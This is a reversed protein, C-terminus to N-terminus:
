NWKTIPELHFARLSNFSRGSIQCPNSNNIQCIMVTLWLNNNKPCRVSIMRFTDQQLWLECVLSTNLDMVMMQIWRTRNKFWSRWTWVRITILTEGWHYKDIELILPRSRNIVMLRLEKVLSNNNPFSPLWDIKNPYNKCGRILNKYTIQDVIPILDLSINKFIKNNNCKRTTPIINFIAKISLSVKVQSRFSLVMQSRLKELPSKCIYHIM